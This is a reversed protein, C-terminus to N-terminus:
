LHRISDRRCFVTQYEMSASAMTPMKINELLLKAAGRGMQRAPVYFASIKPYLLKGQNEKHEVSVVSLQQPIQINMKACCNLFVQTHEIGITCVATVKKERCYKKIDRGAFADDYVSDAALLRPYLNLKPYLKRYRNLIGEIYRQHVDQYYLLISSHNNQVLIDLMKMTYSEFQAYVNVGKKHVKKGIYVMPYGEELIENFADEDTRRGKLNGLSSMILGDIRKQKMFELYKPVAGEPRQRNECILVMSYGNENLTEEIGKFLELNYDGDFVSMRQGYVPIYVGIMNTTQTVLGRAFQNPEYQYYEVAEMVAQRKKDSVGASNNLIRSVTSISVGARKAVDYISAAM